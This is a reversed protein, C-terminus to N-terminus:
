IWGTERSPRIDHPARRPSTQENRYLKTKPDHNTAFRQSGAVLTTTHGSPPADGNEVSFPHIALGEKSGIERDASKDTLASDDHEPNDQPDALGDHNVSQSHNAFDLRTRLHKAVAGIPIMRTVRRILSERTKRIARLWKCSLEIGIRIRRKFARYSFVPLTNKVLYPLM